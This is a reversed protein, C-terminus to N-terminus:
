PKKFKAVFFGNTCNHFPYVRVAKKVEPSYEKQQWETLGRTYQLNPASIQELEVDAKELVANVVGENEEPAFTCTSYVLTGGDKLLSLGRLVLQKQTKSM